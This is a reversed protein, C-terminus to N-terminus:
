SLPASAAVSWHEGNPGLLRKSLLGVFNGLRQLAGEPTQKRKM